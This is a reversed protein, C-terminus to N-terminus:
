ITLIGSFTSSFAYYVIGGPWLLYRRSTAARKVRQSTMNNALDEASPFYAIDGSHRQTAIALPFLLLELTVHLPEFYLDANCSHKMTPNTVLSKARAVTQHCNFNNEFNVLLDM